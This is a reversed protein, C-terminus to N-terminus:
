KDVIKIKKNKLCNLANEIAVKRKTSVILDEEVKKLQQELADIIIIRNVELVGDKLDDIYKLHNKFDKYVNENKEVNLKDLNKINYLHM